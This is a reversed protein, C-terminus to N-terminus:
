DEFSPAVWGLPTLNSSYRGDSQAAFKGFNAFAQNGDEAQPQM